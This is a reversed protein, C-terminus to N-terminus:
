DGNNGGAFREVAEIMALRELRDMNGLNALWRAQKRKINQRQRFDAGLYSYDHLRSPQPYNCWIYEVKENGGRDVTRCCEWRWGKLGDMYLPHHYHSVMIRAKLPLLLAILRKHDDYSLEYNYYDRGSSRSDHIYPPDVYLFDDPGLKGGHQALWDFASQQLFAWSEGGDAATADTVAPAMTPWSPIQRRGGDGGPAPRCRAPSWQRWWALVDADLDLGINVVAPRKYRMVACHGLFLSVFRGHPPIENILWRFVQGKGGPYSDKGM